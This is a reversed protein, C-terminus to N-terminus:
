VKGEVVVMVVDLCGGISGEVSIVIWSYGGKKYKIKFGV